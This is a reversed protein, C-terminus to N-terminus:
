KQSSYLKFCYDCSDVAKLSCPLLVVEENLKSCGVFNFINLIIYFLFECIVITCFTVARQFGVHDKTINKDGM